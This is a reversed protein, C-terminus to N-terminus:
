EPAATKVTNVLRKAFELCPSFYEEYDEIRAGPTSEELKNLMKAISKRAYGGFAFGGFGTAGLLGRKAATTASYDNTGGALQVFHKKTTFDVLSTGAKDDDTTKTPESPIILSSDETSANNTKLLLAALDAAAYAMGKHIDGSMPRGDTQWIQVGEFLPWSVHHTMVLQLTDIFLKTSEGMNPLSVSILKLHRCAADGIENWLESFAIEHNASTHIEIADVAGSEILNRTHGRGSIYPQPEILGLPCVSICRGCGYCKSEIVGTTPVAQDKFASQPIPPIAWAPCVRECPRPCAPPCKEPNFYAKRFHLDEDDNISVMLYPKTKMSAYDVGAKIGISAATLVAEDAALDVCDVGALTYLFCLNRIL